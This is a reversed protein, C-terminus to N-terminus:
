PTIQRWYLAKAVAQTTNGAGLKARAHALHAEITRESTSLIDSTDAVTKGGAIWRLVEKERETLSPIPTAHAGIIEIARTECCICIMQLLIRHGAKLDVPHDASLSVVAQAAAADSMPFGIGDVMGLSKAESDIQLAARTRRSGARAEGWTFPKHHAYSFHTVPDKWLYKQSRYRNGWEESWTHAIILPEADENIASLRTIMFRNFGFYELVKSFDAMLESLITHQNCREAFSLAKDAFADM